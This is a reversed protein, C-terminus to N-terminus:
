PVLWTSGDFWGGSLNYFQLQLGGASWNAQTLKLGGAFRGDATHTQTGGTRALRRSLAVLGDGGTGRCTVGIAALNDNLEATTPGKVGLSVTILYKAVPLSAGLSGWATPIDDDDGRPDGPAYLGDIFDVAFVGPLDEVATGDILLTDTYAM